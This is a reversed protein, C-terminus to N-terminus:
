LIMKNIATWVDVANYFGTDSRLLGRSTVLGYLDIRSPAMHMVLGNLRCPKPGDIEGLWKSKYPKPGHIDDALM